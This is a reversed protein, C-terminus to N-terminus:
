PGNMLLAAADALASEDGVNGPFIVYAVGPFRSEPGTQWVPVGPSIQGLVTARRVRLAKTGIDSSTIGGKAILFAPVATISAVLSQVAESIRVSRALAAEQTDGALTLVNRRTFVVPTIGDRILADCQEAIRVAETELAGPELVLDSNLAIPAIGPLTLLAQLQATTKQTHSGIVILGGHRTAQRVMDARTLLPRNGINGIAQVFAAAVRYCYRKGQALARYLAVCFVQVDEDTVANVILKQFNRLGALKTTIAELDISRLEHLTISVVDDARFRGETKEEIYERLNAHRYGFTRDSAFETQSAPVLTDGQRVYHTDDLTFRGGQRFYPCLIEGDVPLGAAALENAIVQTELPYHGRLTSDGRSVLLFDRGFKRSAAIANRTIEAHAAATQAASFSRSNTLIFFLNGPEAFGSEMSEPSWDTYVSVDHVTQVGTPDDDLVIIKRQSLNSADTLMQHVDAIKEQPFPTIAAYPRVTDM